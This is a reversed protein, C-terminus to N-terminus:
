TGRAWKPDLLLKLAAEFEECIERAKEPKIPGRETVIERVWEAPILDFGEELAEEVGILPRADFKYTECVVYFPKGQMQAHYALLWTPTGNVISGDPKVMDAGVLVMDMKDMFRRIEGDPIVEVNLGGELKGAMVRGYSVGGRSGSRSLSLSEAIYVRFRKGGRWAKTLTLHVTSSYSCSMVKLGDRILEAGNSAAGIGASGLERVMEEARSLAYSRLRELGVEPAVRALEYIYRATQSAISAMSPRAEILRRGAWKLMEMFDELDEAEAEKVVLKVAELARRSLYRAGHIRDETIERLLEEFGM